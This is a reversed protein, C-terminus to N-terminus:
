YTWLTEKPKEIIKSYGDTDVLEFRHYQGGDCNITIWKRKCPFKHKDNWDRFLGGSNYTISDCIISSATHKEGNIWITNGKVRISPHGSIGHEELIYQFPSFKKGVLYAWLRRRPNSSVFSYSYQIMSSKVSHGCVKRTRGRYYNSPDWLKRRYYDVSIANPPLGEIQKYAMWNSADLKEPFIRMATLGGFISALGGFIFRDCRLIRSLM